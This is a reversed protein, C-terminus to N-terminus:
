TKTESAASFNLLAAAARRRPLGPLGGFTPDIATEAEQRGGDIMEEAVVKKV